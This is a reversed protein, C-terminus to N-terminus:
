NFVHEIVVRILDDIMSSSDYEDMVVRVQEQEEEEAVAEDEEFLKRSVTGFQIHEDAGDDKGGRNKRKKTPTGPIRQVKMTTKSTKSPQPTQM